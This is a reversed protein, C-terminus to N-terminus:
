GAQHALKIAILSAQNNVLRSGPQGLVLLTEGPYVVGSVDRIIKKTPKQRNGILRYLQDLPLKLTSELMARLDLVTRVNGGRGYATVHEFVVGLARGEPRYSPLRDPEM